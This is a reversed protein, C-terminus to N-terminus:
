MKTCAGAIVQWHDGFQKWVRLYKFDGQFPQGDYNADLELIVTVVATDGILNITLDRTITKNVVMLSGSSHSELDMAKTITHGSPLNFLLDDHLLQDLSELNHTEIAKLLRAEYNIIYQQTPHTM